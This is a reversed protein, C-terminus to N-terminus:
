ESQAVYKQMNARARASERPFDQSRSAFTLRQCMDVLNDLKAARPLFHSLYTLALYYKESNVRHFVVPDDSEVNDIDFYPSHIYILDNTRHHLVYTQSFIFYPTLRRLWLWPAVRPGRIDKRLIRRRWKWPTHKRRMRQLISMRPPVKQAFATHDCLYILCYKAAQAFLEPGACCAQSRKPDCLFESVYELSDPYTIVGISDRELAVSSQRGSHFSDFLGFQPHFAGM